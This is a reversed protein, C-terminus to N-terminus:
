FSLSGYIVLLAFSFYGFALWMYGGDLMLMFFVYGSVERHGDVDWLGWFTYDEEADLGPTFHAQERFAARGGRGRSGGWGRARSGRGEGRSTQRGSAPGQQLQPSGNRRCSAQHQPLPLLFVPAAGPM